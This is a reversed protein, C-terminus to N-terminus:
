GNRELIRGALYLSGCILLRAPRGDKEAEEAISAVAADVSVAPSAALGVERGRDAAEEATLSNQEGPIVVARASVAYPVLPRLFDTAAKTNLMGYILHLPRGDAAKWGAAVTGLMDGAAANHGGDLYVEFGAGLAEVIPGKNLRQMRAPWVANRIGEAIASVPIEIGRAERLRLAAAVAIAANDIQHRGALSPRPLEMVPAMDSEFRFGNDTAVAEFDRGARVVPAGVRSAYEEIVAVGAPEQLGVVSSVGPKQIAAKEGVIAELTPGLYQMHDMSVPTIVTVAPDDVVNTADLRGGLGVELLLLDAPEEAFAKFAACTTIEFFTIPEGGNIEECEELLALLRDEAIIEGGLRIREAFRVLHPSTYVHVKLGAAEAMAKLYAIVSGKGNTGAVHIVPPLRDQPRGMKELLAHVRDLTLDIIKPHLSMLRALVADSPRDTM